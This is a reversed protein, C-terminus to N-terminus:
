IQGLICVNTEIFSTGEVDRYVLLMRDHIYHEFIIVNKIILSKARNYALTPTKNGQM